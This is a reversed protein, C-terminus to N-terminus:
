NMLACLDGRGVGTELDVRTYTWYEVHSDFFLVSMSENDREGHNIPAQTDDCAMPENPPFDDRIAIRSALLGRGRSMKTCLYIGVSRDGFAAYSVARPALRRGDPAGFDGLGRGADNSDGSSPCLYVGPDPIIRAWYLSALWEAGGFDPSRSTGCGPLGAPWPYFRNDGLGNLYTAMGRALQNLNNRCRIRRAEERARAPAPLLMGASVVLFLFFVCGLVIMVIAWAPMGQQRMRVPPPGFQPPLPPQAQPLVPTPVELRTGCAPCKGVRGGWEDGVSFSKGCGGCTVSIAM